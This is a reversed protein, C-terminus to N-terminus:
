PLPYEVFLPTLPKLDFVEPVAAGTILDRGPRALRGTAGPFESGPYFVSPHTEFFGGCVVNACLALVVCVIRSGAHKWFRNM